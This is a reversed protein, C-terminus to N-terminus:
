PINKTSPVVYGSNRVRQTAQRVDNTGVKEANTTTTNPTRGLHIMKRHHIVSSADRNKKGYFHKNEGGDKNVIATRLTKTYLSRNMSFTGGNTYSNLYLPYRVPPLPALTAIVSGIVVTLGDHTISVGNLLNDYLITTRDSDYIRYTDNGINMVHISSSWTPLIVYCLYVDLIAYIAISGNSLEARDVAIPINVNTAKVAIVSKVVNEFSYGTLASLAVITKGETSPLLDSIYAKTVTKTEAESTFVGYLSEPPFGADLLTTPSYGANKLELLPYGATKLEAATYGATKLETATYGISKLYDIELNLSRLLLIDIKTVTLNQITTSVSNFLASQSPTFTASIDQYEGENKISNSLDPHITYVGEM